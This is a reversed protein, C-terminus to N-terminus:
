QNDWGTYDVSWGCDICYWGLDDHFAENDCDPCTYLKVVAKPNPENKLWNKPVLKEDKVVGDYLM